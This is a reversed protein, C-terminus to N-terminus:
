EHSIPVKAGETRRTDIPVRIELIGDHYSAKVDEEKAGPPLPMVRGFSGYRFESRYGGATEIKSELKREAQIRLMQDRVTIEVDEDPDIGPMECRVVLTGNERYEEVRLDEATPTWWNAPLIPDNLWSRLLPVEPWIPMRREVKMM